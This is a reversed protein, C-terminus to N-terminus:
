ILGSGNVLEIDASAPAYKGEAEVWRNLGTQLQVYSNTVTRSERDGDILDTVYEVRQSNAEREAIRAESQGLVFRTEAGGSLGISLILASGLSNWGTKLM